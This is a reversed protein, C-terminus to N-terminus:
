NWIKGIGIILLENFDNIVRKKEIAVIFLENFDNIINAIWFLQESKFM